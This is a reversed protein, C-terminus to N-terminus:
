FIDSAETPLEREPLQVLVPKANMAAMKSAIMVGFNLEAQEPQTVGIVICPKTTVSQEVVYTKCVQVDRDNEYLVGQLADELAKQMNTADAQNKHVKRKDGQYTPLERWLWLTLAVPTGAPSIPADPYDQSMCHKVAEQYFRLAESKHLQVYVRGKSRGISAEPATWPIPNIGEILYFKM